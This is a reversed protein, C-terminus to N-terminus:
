KVGAAHNHDYSDHIGRDYIFGLVSNLIAESEHGNHFEARIEAAKAELMFLHAAERLHEKITSDEIKEAAELLAKTAQQAEAIPATCRTCVEYEGLSLNHGGYDFTRAPLQAALVTKVVDAAQRAAEAVDPDDSHKRIM